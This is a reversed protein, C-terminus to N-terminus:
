NQFLRFFYVKLTPFPPIHILFLIEMNIHPVLDTTFNIAQLLMWRYLFTLSEESTDNWALSIHDLGLTRILEQNNKIVRVLFLRPFFYSYFFTAIFKTLCWMSWHMTPFIIPNKKIKGLIIERKSYLFALKQLINM